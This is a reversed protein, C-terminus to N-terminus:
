PQWQVRDDPVLLVERVGDLTRPFQIEAYDNRTLQRFVRISDLAKRQESPPLSALLVALSTGFPYARLHGNIWVTSFISVSGRPLEVCLLDSTKEPCMGVGRSRIVETAVDLEKADSAGLLVPDSVSRADSFGELIVRLATKGLFGKALDCHQIQKSEAQPGRGREKNPKCRLAMGGDTRSIVEFEATSLQLTQTFDTQSLNGTSDVTQISIKMGPVLNIFNEADDAYLFSPVESAPVVITKAIAARISHINLESPFCGRDKAVILDSNFHKWQTNVDTNTRLANWGSVSPSRVIWHARDGVVGPRMSFDEGGITCANGPPSVASPSPGPLFVVSTQLLGSDIKGERGPVLM